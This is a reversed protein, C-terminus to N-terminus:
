EKQIVEDITCNAKMAVTGDEFLIDHTTYAIYNVIESVSFNDWHLNDDRNERDKTMEPDYAKADYTWGYCYEARFYLGKNVRDIYLEKVNKLGWIVPYHHDSGNYHAFIVFDTFIDDNMAPPLKVIDIYRLDRYDHWKGFHKKIEPYKCEVNESIYRDGNFPDIYYGYPGSRISNAKKLKYGYVKNSSTYTTIGDISIDFDTPYNYRVSIGVQQNGYSGIVHANPYAIYGNTTFDSGDAFLWTNIMNIICEKDTLDIIGKEGDGTGGRRVIYCDAMNVGGKNGGSYM